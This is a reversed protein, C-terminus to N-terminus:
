KDIDQKLIKTRLETYLEHIKTWNKDNFGNKGWSLVRDLEKQLRYAKNRNDSLEAVAQRMIEVSSVHVCLELGRFKLFKSLWQRGYSYRFRQMETKIEQFLWTPSILDRPDVKFINDRFQSLYSQKTESINRRLENLSKVNYTRQISRRKKLRQEFRATNRPYRSIKGIALKKKKAIAKIEAIKDYATLESLTNHWLFTTVGYHMRKKRKAQLTSLLPAYDHFPHDTVINSFMDVRSLKSDWINCDIGVDERLTQELAAIADWTEEDSVPHYNLDDESLLKPISTKLFTRVQGYGPQVDVQYNEYNGFALAGWVVEGDPKTFLARAPVQDGTDAAVDTPRVMLKPNASFRPSDLEIRLTDIGIM